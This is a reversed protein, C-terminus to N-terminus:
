IFKLKEFCIDKIKKKIMKAVVNASGVAKLNEFDVKENLLLWV